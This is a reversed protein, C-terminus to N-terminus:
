APQHVWDYLKLVDTIPMRSSVGLTLPSIRGRSFHEAAAYGIMAANDTCLNL